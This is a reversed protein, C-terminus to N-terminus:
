NRVSVDCEGKNIRPPNKPQNIGLSGRNGCSQSGQGELSGTSGADDCCGKKGEKSEQKRAVGPLKLAVAIEREDVRNLLSLVVRWVFRCRKRERKNWGSASDDNM